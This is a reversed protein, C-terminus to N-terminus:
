CVLFFCCWGWVGHDSGMKRGRGQARDLRGADTVAMPRYISIPGTIRQAENTAPLVGVIETPAGDLRVIRGIIHPTGGFRTQWYRHSIVLVNCKGPADEAPLFGRGFEPKVGLVDFYNATVRAAFPMDAPRNPETLTFGWYRVAALDAIGNGAEALDAFQAPTPDSFPQNAVSRDLRFLREAHQERGRV